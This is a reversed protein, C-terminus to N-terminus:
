GVFCVVGVAVADAVSFQVDVDGIGVALRHGQAGHCGVGSSRHHTSQSVAISARSSPNVIESATADSIPAAAQPRNGAVVITFKLM